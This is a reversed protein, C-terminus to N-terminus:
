LVHQTRNTNREEPSTETYFTIAERIAHSINGSTEHNAISRLNAQTIADLRITTHKSKMRKTGNSDQPITIM